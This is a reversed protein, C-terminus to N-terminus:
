IFDLTKRIQQSARADYPPCPQWAGRSKLIQYKGTLKKTSFQKERLKSSTFSIKGGNAGRSFNRAVGM